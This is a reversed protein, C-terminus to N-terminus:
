KASTKKTKKTAATQATTKKVASKKAAPRSSGASTGKELTALRQKVENLQQTLEGTAAIVHQEVRRLGQLIADSDEVGPSQFMRHMGNLWDNVQKKFDCSRDMSERMSKLFQPSRMYEDCYDSWAKFFTDQMRKAMDPSIDNPSFAAGQGMAGGALNAFHKAFMQQAQMFEAAMEKMKDATQSM